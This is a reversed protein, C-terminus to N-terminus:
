DGQIELKLCHRDWGSKQDNECIRAYTGMCKKFQKISHTTQKCVTELTFHLLQTIEDMDFNMKVNMDCVETSIDSRGYCGTERLRQNIEQNHVDEMTINGEACGQLAFIAMCILSVFGFCFCFWYKIWVPNKTEITGYSRM